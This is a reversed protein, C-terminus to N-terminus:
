ILLHQRSHLSCLIVVQLEGHLARGWGKRGARTRPAGSRRSAPVLSRHDRDHCCRLFPGGKGPNRDRSSAPAQQVTETRWCTLVCFTTASSLHVCATTIRSTSSSVQATRCTRTPTGGSPSGTGDRAAPSRDAVGRAHTAVWVVVCPEARRQELREQLVGGIGGPQAFKEAKQKLSALEEPTGLATASKVLKALTLPLPPVPLRPLAPQNKYMVSTAPTATPPNLRWSDYPPTATM